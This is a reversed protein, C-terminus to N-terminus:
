VKGKQQKCWCKHCMAKYRENGGLLIERGSTIVNGNKDIRANVNAKAGCQCVTVIEEINDAVEILRKSGEFLETKFNTKLGYCFVEVGSDALERLEDIQASTFFQSEDAIIINTGPYKLAISDDPSIVCVEAELGIRSRIKTEGDRVDVSPKILWVQTGNELYNFRQILAQATKSSGMAGYKFTLM